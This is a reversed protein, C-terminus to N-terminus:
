PAPAAAKPQLSVVTAFVISAFTRELTKSHFNQMTMSEALVVQDGVGIQSKMVAAWVDAGGANRVKVYTYGAANMTETVEGQLSKAGATLAGGVASGPVGAGGGGPIITPFPSASPQSAPASHGPAAAHPSAPQSAAATGAAMSGHNGLTSPAKAKASGALGSAPIAAPTADKPCGCFALLTWTILIFHIGRQM